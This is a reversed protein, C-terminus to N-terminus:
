RGEPQALITRLSRWPAANMIRDNKIHLGETVTPTPSLSLTLLM